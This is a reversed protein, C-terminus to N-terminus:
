KSRRMSRESQDKLSTLRTTWFEKLFERLTELGQPRLRYLRRRGERRERLLGAEVLIRLHQSVAPRTVDFKEAIAGAPLERNRVLRLIEVRRPESLVQFLSAM